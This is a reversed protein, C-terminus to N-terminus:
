STDKLEMLVALGFCKVKRPELVQYKVLDQNYM